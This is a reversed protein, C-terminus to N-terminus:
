LKGWDNRRRIRLNPLILGIFISGVVVGAGILFWRQNTQQELDRNRQEADAIQRTQETVQRRLESRERTISVLNTSTYKITALEEEVQEKEEALAAHDAKLKAHSEQLEDLKVALQDPNRQLEALRVELAVLRDRAGPEDQLLHSLVYGVTGDRTRVRSYGTKKNRSLEKVAQGSTLTRLLKHKTSEGTRMTIRAVDTVYRTEALAQGLGCLCLLFLLLLIRPM